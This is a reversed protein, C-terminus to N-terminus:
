FPCEDNLDQGTLFAELINKAEKDLRVRGTSEVIAEYLLKLAEYFKSDSKYMGVCLPKLTGGQLLYLEYGEDLITEDDIMPGYEVKMLKLTNSYGPLKIAYCDGGIWAEKYGINEILEGDTWFKSDYRMTDASVVKFLPDNSRWESEQESWYPHKADLDVKRLVKWDADVGDVTRQKLQELFNAVYEESKTLKKFDHYCLADISVKLLKSAAIALELPIRPNTDNKVRSLYGVSVKAETEIDKVKIGKKDCLHYINNVCVKTDM